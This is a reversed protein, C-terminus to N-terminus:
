ITAIKVIDFTFYITSENDNLYQKYEAYGDMTYNDYNFVIYENYTPIQWVEAWKEFWQVAKDINDTIRRKYIQGYMNYVTVLYM